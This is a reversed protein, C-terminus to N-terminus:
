MKTLAVYDVVGEGMLFTKIADLMPDIQDDNKHTNDPTFKACEDIFDVVWPLGLSADPIVVNGSCIHGVCDMVRSLKSTGRQVPIVPIGGADRQMEQILGTGSAKDEIYYASTNPYREKIANWFGVGMQKLEPAEWKDRKLDILYIRGDYGLGWAEFVSYDNHEKEKMATDAFCAIAQFHAPLATYTQFWKAKIIGGGLPSPRQMYQSAFTYPDAKLTELQEANHKAEWLPGDSLNVNIPRGYDWASPYELSEASVDAPLILHAWKEGTGGTVLHGTADDEHLRQMIVIVPVDEHALRSKITNTFRTNIKKRLADSYADDPKLPDDVIIAGTFGEEMRGARFGTVSGGTSSAYIGGGENTYWKQNSNAEGRLSIPWLEQYEESLVVDKVKQSNERVLNDSYSLHMFKARPNIALGRAMFNIVALETKTYGPSVNIILRKTKGELVRQLADSIIGHHRGLHFKTGERQKLFYRSFILHDRECAERLMRKLNPNDKALKAFSNSFDLPM